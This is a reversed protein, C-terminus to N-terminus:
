CLRHLLLYQLELLQLFHDFSGFLLCLLNRDLFNDSPATLDILLCFEKHLFQQRCLQDVLLEGGLHIHAVLDDVFHPSSEEGPV